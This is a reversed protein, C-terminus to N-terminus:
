VYQCQLCRQKTQIGAVMMRWLLLLISLLRVKAYAPLAKKIEGRKFYVNAQKKITEAQEIKEAVTLLGMRPKWQLLEDDSLEM